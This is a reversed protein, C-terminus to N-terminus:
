ARLLFGCPSVMSLFIASMPIKAREVANAVALATEAWVAAALLTGTGVAGWFKQM